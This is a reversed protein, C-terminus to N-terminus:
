KALVLLDCVYLRRTKDDMGQWVDETIEGGKVGLWDRLRMVDSASIQDSQVMYAGGFCKRYRECILDELYQAAELSERSPKSVQQRLMVFKQLDNAASATSLIFDVIAQQRLLAESTQDNDNKM